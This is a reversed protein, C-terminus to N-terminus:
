LTERITVGHIDEYEFDIVLDRKQKDIDLTLSILENVGNTSLIQRAVYSRIKYIDFRHGTMQTFWPLGKSLDLFWEQYILLLRTKVTQMIADSTQRRGIQGNIIVLDHTDKDLHYVTEM